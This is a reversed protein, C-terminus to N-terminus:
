LGEKGNLLDALLTQGDSLSEEPTMMIEPCRTVMLLEAIPQDEANRHEVHWVGPIRTEQIISPGFAQLTASLEGQGLRERLRACESQSLLARVDITTTEGTQQLQTLYAQLEIFLARIAPSDDSLEDALSVVGIDQLGTM